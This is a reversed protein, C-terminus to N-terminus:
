PAMCASISFFGATLVSVSNKFRQCATSIRALQKSANRLARTYLVVFIKRINLNLLQSPQPLDILDKIVNMIGSPALNIGIVEDVL